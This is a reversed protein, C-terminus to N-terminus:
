HLTNYQQMRVVSAHRAKTHNTDAPSHNLTSETAPEVVEVGNPSTTTANIVPNSAQAKAHGSRLNMGTTNVMHRKQRTRASPPQPPTPPTPPLLRGKSRTSASPPQSLQVPSSQEPESDSDKIEVSDPSTSM